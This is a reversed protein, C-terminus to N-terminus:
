SRVLLRIEISPWLLEETWPARATHAYDVWAMGIWSVQLREIHSPTSSRRALPILWVGVGIGLWGSWSRDLWEHLGSVGVVCATYCRLLGVVLPRLWENENM